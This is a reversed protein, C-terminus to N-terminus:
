HSSNLRTSKRDEHTGGATTSILNVYSERVANGDVTWAVVWQAGEGEAFADDDALAYQAGEFVPIIKEADGLAEDLYDRLGGAYHWEHVDGTKEVVLSVKVGGLLVAKSRLAHVLDSSCVDSSWDSIRMEYATKQKFFFVCLM